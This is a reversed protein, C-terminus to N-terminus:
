AEESHCAAAYKFLLASQTQNQTHSQLCGTHTVDDTTELLSAMVLHSKIRSMIIEPMESRYM